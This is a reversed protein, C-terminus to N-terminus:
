DTVTHTINLPAVLIILQREGANIKTHVGMSHPGGPRIQLTPGRYNWATKQFKTQYHPM